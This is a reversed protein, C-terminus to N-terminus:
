GRTVTSQRPKGSCGAGCYFGNGGDSELGIRVLWGAHGRM